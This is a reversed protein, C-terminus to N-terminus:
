PSSSSRHGHKCPHRTSQDFSKARSLALEGLGMVPASTNSKEDTPQALASLTPKV